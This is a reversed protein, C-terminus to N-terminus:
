SGPMNSGTEGFVIVARRTRSKTGTIIGYVRRCIVIARPVLFVSIKGHDTHAFISGRDHLQAEGMGDAVIACVMRRRKDPTVVM